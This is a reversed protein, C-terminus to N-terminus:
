SVSLAETNNLKILPTGESAITGSGAGGSTCELPETGAAASFRPEVGGVVNVMQASTLGACLETFSLGGILCLYKFEIHILDLIAGAEMLVLLTEWPLGAPWLETELECKERAECKVPTGPLEEVKEHDLNLVETILDDAGPGVTGDLFVSCSIAFKNNVVTETILLELGTTAPAAAAIPAGNALWEAAREEAFAAPVVVVCLALMASLVVIRITPRRM